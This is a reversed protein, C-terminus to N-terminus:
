CVTLPYEKSGQALPYVGEQLYGVVRKFNTIRRVEMDGVQVIYWGVKVNEQEAPSDKFVKSVKIPAQNTFELGLPQEDFKRPEIRGDPCQFHIRLPWPEYEALGRELMADITDYDEDRVSQGNIAVLRSHLRVGLYKAYSNITFRAVTIPSQRQEADHPIIGLPRHVAYYTRVYLHDGGHHPNHDDEFDLQLGHPVQPQVTMKEPVGDQVPMEIDSKEPLVDFILHSYVPKPKRMIKLLCFFCFWLVVCVLVAFIQMYPVSKNVTAITPGEIADEIRMGPELPQLNISGDDTAVVNEASAQALSIMDDKLRRDPMLVQAVPQGRSVQEGDAVLWGQFIAGQPAEVPTQVFPLTQVAPLRGVVAVTKDQLVDALNCGKTLQDQRSEIRGKKPSKLVEHKGSADLIVAIPDGKNVVDNTRVRWEVFEATLFPVEVPKWELGVDLPDLKGITAINLDKMADDISMNRRLDKQMERVIGARIPRVYQERYEDQVVGAVIAIITGKTVFDGKEVKYAIFRRGPKVCTATEGSGVNLPPLKGIVALTRDMMVEDLKMGWKLGEQRSVLIGDKTATIQHWVDRSSRVDVIPSSVTLVDGVKARWQEFKMGAASAVPQQGARLKLKTFKGVALLTRDIAREVPDGPRFKTQMAKVVGAKESKLKVLQGADDKLEVLVQNKKVMDGHQVKWSSFHLGVITQAPVDGKDRKLAPWTPLTVIALIRQDSLATDINTGTKLKQQITVKGTQPAAYTRSIGDNRIVTCLTHGAEVLQGDEVFWDQFTM